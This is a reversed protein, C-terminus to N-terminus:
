EAGDQENNENQQQDARKRRPRVTAPPAVVRGASEAEDQHNHENKKQKPSNSSADVQLCLRDLTKLRIRERKAHDVELLLSSQQSGFM